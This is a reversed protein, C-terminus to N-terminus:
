KAGGWTLGRGLKVLDRLPAKPFVKAFALEMCRQLLAAAEDARGRPSRAGARRACLVLRGDINSRAARPRDRDDRADCMRRGRSRRTAACPYRLREAGPLQLRPLLPDDDDDAGDDDDDDDAARDGDRKGPQPAEAAEIVRGLRGIQIVGLRQCEDAHTRMWRALASYKEFFKNRADDAKEFSMVIRQGSWASARIGDPGSGYIVGFNVAKAANRQADSVEDMSIGNMAAAQQRHLDIGKAFDRAYSTM